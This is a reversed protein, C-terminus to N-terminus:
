GKGKNKLVKKKEEEKAKWGHITAVIVKKKADM